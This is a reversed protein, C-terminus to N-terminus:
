VNYYHIFVGMGAVILCAILVLLTKGAPHLFFRVLLANRPVLVKRRPPKRNKQRSPAPRDEAVKM